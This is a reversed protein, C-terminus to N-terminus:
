HVSCETCPGDADGGENQGADYKGETREHGAGVRVLGMLGHEENRGCDRRLDSVGIRAM